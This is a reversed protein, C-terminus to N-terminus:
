LTYTMALYISKFLKSHGLKQKIMALYHDM